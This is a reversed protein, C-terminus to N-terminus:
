WCRSGPVRRRPWTACAPESGAMLPFMLCSRGAAAALEELRIAVAASDPSLSRLEALGARQHTRAEREEVDRVDHLLQPTFALEILDALWGAELARSEEVARETGTGRLGAFVGHDVTVM